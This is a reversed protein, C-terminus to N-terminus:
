GAVPVLKYQKIVSACTHVVQGLDNGSLPVSSLQVRSRELRLGVGEKVMVSGPWM